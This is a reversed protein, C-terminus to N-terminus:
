GGSEWVCQCLFLLGRGFREQSVIRTDLKGDVVTWHAHKALLIARCQARRTGHRTENIQTQHYLFALCLVGNSITTMLWRMTTATCCGYRCRNDTSSRLPWVYGTASRGATRDALEDCIKASKGACSSDTCTCDPRISPRRRGYAMTTTQSDYFYCRHQCWYLLCIQQTTM